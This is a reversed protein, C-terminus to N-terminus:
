LGPYLGQLHHYKIMSHCKARISSRPVTQVAINKPRGTANAKKAAFIRPVNMNIFPSMPSTRIGISNLLAILKERAGIARNKNIPSIRSCVPTAKLAIPAISRIIERTGPRSEMTEMIPPVTKEDKDPEVMAFVAINPDTRKGSM